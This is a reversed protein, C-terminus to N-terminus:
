TVGFVKALGEAEAIKAAIAEPPFLENAWSTTFRLKGLFEKQMRFVEIAPIDWEASLGLVVEQIWVPSLSQTLDADRLIKASLSIESSAVTHPFQTPRVIWEIEYAHPQDEPLLCAKMARVAREINLRDDGAVGLHNMDHTIAAILLNRRQRKTLLRHYYICALYCLWTIHFMHRFNHYPNYLNTAQDWVVKFYYELNGEYIKKPNTAVELLSGNYDQVM